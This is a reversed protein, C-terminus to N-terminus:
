PNDTPIFHNGRHKERFERPSVGMYKKFQKTLAFPSSYGFREALEKVTCNGETLHQCIKELRRQIRYQAPPISFYETFLHQFSSYGFHLRAAIQRMDMTSEGDSALIRAATELKSIQKRDMDPPNLLIQLLFDFMNLGTQPLKKENQLDLEHTLEDFRRAIEANIGIKMEYLVDDRYLRFRNLYGWFEGPFRLYKEVYYGADHFQNKRSDEPSWVILKGPSFPVIRGDFLEYRGTGSLYYCVTCFVEKSSVGTASIRRLFDKERRITVTGALLKGSSRTINLYDCAIGSLVDKKRM